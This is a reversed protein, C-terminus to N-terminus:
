LLNIETHSGLTPRTRSLARLEKGRCRECRVAWCGERDRLLAHIATLLLLGGLVRWPTEKWFCWGAGALVLASLLKPVAVLRRSHPTVERCTSCRQVTEHLLM